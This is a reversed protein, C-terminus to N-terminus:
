SCDLPVVELVSDLVEEGSAESGGFLSVTDSTASSVSEEEVEDGSNSGPAFPLSRDSGSTRSELPTHLRFEEAHEGVEVSGQEADGDPVDHQSASDFEQPQSAGSEWQTPDMEEPHERIRPRVHRDSIDAQVITAGPRRSEWLDEVGRLSLRRVAPPVASASAVPVGLDEQLADITRRFSQWNLRTRASRRGIGM